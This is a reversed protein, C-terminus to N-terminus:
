FNIKLISQEVIFSTNSFSTLFRTALCCNAHHCLHKHKKVLLQLQYLQLCAEELEEKRRNGLKM